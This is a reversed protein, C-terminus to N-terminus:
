IHIHLIETDTCLYLITDAPCNNLKNSIDKHHASGKLIYINVIKATNKNSM